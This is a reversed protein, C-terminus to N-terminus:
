SHGMEKHNDLQFNFRLALEHCEQFGGPVMSIHKFGKKHLDEIFFRLISEHYAGIELLSDGNPHNTEFKNVIKETLPDLGM